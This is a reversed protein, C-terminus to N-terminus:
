VKESFDAVEFSPDMLIYAFAKAKELYEEDGTLRYMLLFAYGNGSVGHCLGPGKRLIGKHWILSACRRAAQVIFTPPIVSAVGVELYKKDGLVLHASILM